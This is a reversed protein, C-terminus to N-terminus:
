RQDIQKGSVSARRRLKSVRPAIGAAAGCPSLTPGAFSRVAAHVGVWFLWTGGTVGGAPRHKTRQGVSARRDTHLPANRRDPAIRAPGGPWSRGTVTGFHGESWRACLSNSCNPKRDIRRTQPGGPWLKQAQRGSGEHRRSDVSAPPCHFPVLLTAWRNEGIKWAFLPLTSATHQHRRSDPAYRGLLANAAPEEQPTPVCRSSNHHLMKGKRRLHHDNDHNAHGICQRGPQGVPRAFSELQGVLFGMAQVMMGDPGLM